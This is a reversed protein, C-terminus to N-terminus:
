LIADVEHLYGAQDIVDDQCDGVPSGAHTHVHRRSQRPLRVLLMLEINPLCM